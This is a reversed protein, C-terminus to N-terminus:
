AQHKQLGGGDGKRLARLSVARSSCSVCAGVAYFLITITLFRRFSTMTM